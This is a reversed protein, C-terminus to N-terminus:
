QPASGPNRSEAAMKDTQYSVKLVLNGFKRRVVKLLVQGNEYELVLESTQENMFTNIDNETLDLTLKYNDLLM